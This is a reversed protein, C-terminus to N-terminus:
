ESKRRFDYDAQLIELRKKKDNLQDTLDVAIQELLDIGQSEAIQARQMLIFLDSSKLTQIEMNITRIRKVIRDIKRNLMDLATNDDILHALSLDADLLIEELSAVDGESFAKNARKMLESRRARDDDNSAFDPHVRKAVDRYLKKIDESPKFQTKGEPQKRAYNTEQTSQDAKKKAVEAYEHYATNDPNSKSLIAAIQAEISDLDVILSGVRQLYKIEFARLENSITELDLELQALSAQLESLKLRKSRVEQELLTETFVIENAL